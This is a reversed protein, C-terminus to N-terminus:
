AAFMDNIVIYWTNYQINYESFVLKLIIHYSIYQLRILIMVMLRIYVLVLHIVKAAEFAEYAALTTSSVTLSSLKEWKGTATNVQWCSLPCEELPKPPSIAAYAYGRDTGRSSTSKLLWKGRSENYEIWIDADGVKRYVSAHGVMEEIPEYFGNIRVANGGRAGEIHVM